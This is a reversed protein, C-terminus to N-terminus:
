MTISVDNTVTQTNAPVPLSLDPREGYREAYETDGGGIAIGQDSYADYEADIMDTTPNVLTWSVLIPVTCTANSGSRTAVVSNDGYFDGNTDNTSINAYCFIVAAAPIDGASITFDFTERFLIPTGSLPADGSGGPGSHEARATFVGTQPDLYGRIRHRHARQQVTQDQGLVLQTLGMLCVCIFTLKSSRM